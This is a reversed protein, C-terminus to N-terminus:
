AQNVLHQREEPKRQRQPRAAAAANASQQLEQQRAAEKEAKKAKKKMLCLMTATVAVAILLILSLLGLAIMIWEPTGLGGSSTGDGGDCFLSRTYGDRDQWTNSGFLPNPMDEEMCNEDLSLLLQKQMYNWETPITGNLLNNTLDIEITRAAGFTPRTYNYGMTSWEKPLTGTLSNGDMILRDMKGMSSWQPPLPSTVNTMNRISLKALKMMNGWQPPLMNETVKPLNTLHIETLTSYTSSYGSGWQWPIEGSLTPSNAIELYDLSELASWGVPITGKLTGQPDGVSLVRLFDLRSFESPLTGAWDSDALRLSRVHREAGFTCGVGSWTCMDTTVSWKGWSQCASTSFGLCQTPVNYGPTPARSNRINLLLNKEAAPSLSATPGLLGSIFLAQLLTAIATAAM